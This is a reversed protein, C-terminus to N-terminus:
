AGCAACINGDEDEDFFVTIQQRNKAAGLIHAVLGAKRSGSAVVAETQRGDHTNRLFFSIFTTLGAEREGRLVPIGSFSSGKTPVVITDGQFSKSEKQLLVHEPLILVVDSWSIGAEALMTNMRELANIREGGQGSLLRAIATFREVDIKKSM